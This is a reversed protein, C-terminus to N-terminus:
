QNADTWWDENEWIAVFDTETEAKEAIREAEDDSIDFRAAIETIETGNITRITMETDGQVEPGPSM